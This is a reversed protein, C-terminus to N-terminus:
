ISLSSLTPLIQTNYRQYCIITCSQYPSYIQNISLVRAALLHLCKRMANVGCCDVFTLRFKYKGLRLLSSIQQPWGHFIVCSKSVSKHHAICVASTLCTQNFCWFYNWDYAQDKTLCVALLHRVKGAKGFTVRLM